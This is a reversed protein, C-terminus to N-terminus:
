TFMPPFHYLYKSINYSIKYSIKTEFWAVATRARTRAFQRKWTEHVHMDTKHLTTIVHANDIIPDRCAAPAKCPADMAPDYTGPDGIFWASSGRDASIVLL